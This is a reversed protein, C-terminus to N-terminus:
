YIKQNQNTFDQLIERLLYRTDKTKIFYTKTKLKTVKIVFLLQPAMRSQRMLLNKVM